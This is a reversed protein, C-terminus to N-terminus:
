YKISLHFEATFKPCSIHSHNGVVILLSPSRSDGFLKMVYKSLTISALWSLPVPIDTYPSLIFFMLNTSSMSRISSLNTTSCSLTWVSFLDPFSQHVHFLWLCHYEFPLLLLLFCCSQSHLSIQISPLDISMPCHSWLSRLAFPTIAPNLLM